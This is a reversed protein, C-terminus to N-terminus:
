DDDPDTAPMTDTVFSAATRVTAVHQFTRPAKKLNFFGALDTTSRADAFRLAGEAIGFNKEVFRLISGFDHRQNNIM